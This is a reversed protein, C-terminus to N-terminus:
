FVFAVSRVLHWCTIGGCSRPLHAYSISVLGATFSCQSTFSFEGRKKRGTRTSDPAERVGNYQLAYNVSLVVGRLVVLVRDTERGGFWSLSM